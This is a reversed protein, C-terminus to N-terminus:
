KRGADTGEKAKLIKSLDDKADNEAPTIGLLDCVMAYVSVNHLEDISDVFRPGHGIFTAQMDPHENDFGHVGVDGLYLQIRPDFSALVMNPPEAVLYIPAIRESDGFYMHEPFKLPDEPGDLFRDAKYMKVKGENESVLRKLDSELDNLTMNSEDRLWFDMYPGEAMYLVNSATQVYQEVSIISEEPSSYAAINTMGHDSVVIIHSIDFLNREELAAILQGIIGDITRIALYTPKYWEDHEVGFNHGYSDVDPFYSALFDPRPDSDIWDLITQLREQATEEFNFDAYYPPVVDSINAGIGVWGNVGCTINNKQCTVWLPEGGFWIADRSNEKLSFEGLVPDFFENGVIGHHEPLLGTVLTYMNPFTKSPFCPRMGDPPAIGNSKLRYLNPTLEEDVYSPKFGDLGLMIVMGKDPVPTDSTDTGTSTVTETITSTITTEGGEVDTPTDTVTTTELDTETSTTVGTETETYTVTVTTTTETASGNVAASGGEGPPLVNESSGTLFTGIAVGVALAVLGLCTAIVCTKLKTRRRSYEPGYFTGSSEEIADFGAMNSGGVTAYGNGGPSPPINDVDDEDVMIATDEYPHNGNDLLNQSTEPDSKQGNLTIRAPM